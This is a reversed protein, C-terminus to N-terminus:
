SNASILRNYYEKVSIQFYGKTKMFKVQDLLSPFGKKPYNFHRMYLILDIAAAAVSRYTACQDGSDCPLTGPLATNPRISPKHMGWPNSGDLFVATTYNGTELVSILIWNTFYSESYGNKQLQLALDSQLARTKSTTPRPIEITQGPQEPSGPSPTSAKPLGSSLFLWILVFALLILLGPM